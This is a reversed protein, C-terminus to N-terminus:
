LNIKFNIKEEKMKLIKSFKTKFIVMNHFNFRFVSSFTINFLNAEPTITQILKVRTYTNNKDSHFTKQNLLTAKFYHM